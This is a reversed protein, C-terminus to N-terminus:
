KVEICFHTFLFSVFYKVFFGIYKQAATSSYLIFQKFTKYLMTCQTKHKEKYRVTVTAEPM